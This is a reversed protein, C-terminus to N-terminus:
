RFKDLLNEASLLSKFGNQSLLMLQFDTFNFNDMTDFKELARKFNMITITWLLVSITWLICITWFAALIIPSITEFYNKLHNRM